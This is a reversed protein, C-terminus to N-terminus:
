NKQLYNNELIKILYKFKSKIHNQSDEALIDKARQEMFHYRDLDLSGHAAGNDFMMSQPILILRSRIADLQAKSFNFEDLAHVWLEVEEIVDDDILDEKIEKKEIMDKPNHFEWYFKYGNVYKGNKVKEYYKGKENMVLKIMETKSLDDVLPDIVYKEFHTRAFHGNKDTYSGQGQYPIEFLEKFKKISMQGDHSCLRSDSNARLFEYFRISRENSMKAIDGSWMTIYRSEKGNLAGFLPLYDSNLRIRVRNPFSAITAVFCGNIYIDKDKDKFKLFSNTPMDGIDRMLNESLHDEDAEIGLYAALEKKDLYLTDPCPKTWDHKSLAFTFAKYEKLKMNRRAETFIMSVGFLNPNVEGKFYEELTIQHNDEDSYYMSM